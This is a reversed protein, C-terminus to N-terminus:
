VSQNTSKGASMSNSLSTNTPLLSLSLSLFYIVVVVVFGLLSIFYKLALDKLLLTVAETVESFM